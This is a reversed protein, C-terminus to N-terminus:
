RRASATARGAGEAVDRLITALEEPATLMPWHGSDLQIFRWDDGTMAAFPGGGSAIMEELKAVPMGFGGAVIAVRGYEGGFERTLHLQQTYTAFPQTTARRSLIDRTSADFDAVASPAGLDDVGPFPLQWGDQVSKEIKQRQEPPYFDINAWGDPLPGTDVYVVSGIREPVRDVVGEVVIGAYSHGVLIVDSLDEYKLLNIVDDIHTDLNVDPGALHTREGVGTLTVAYVDHGDARLRSAVDRWAWGGLWAGPVLVFQTM